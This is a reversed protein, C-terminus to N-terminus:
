PALQSSVATFIEECLKPPIRYLDVSKFNTDEPFCKGHQASAKHRLRGNNEVLSDCDKNCKELKLDFNNWFRTNKRYPFGYKCYSADTYEGEMFPQSVLLGSAPNEITFFTPKSDKIIELVHLVIRNAAEIDRLGSTHARSFERCPPSFHAYDFGVAITTPLDMVDAILTPQFKSSIDVTVCEWGNLEFARSISKTGCFFEIMRPM